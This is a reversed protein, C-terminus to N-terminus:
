ANRPNPDDLFYGPRWFYAPDPSRILLHVPEPWPLPRGSCLKSHSRTAHQTNRTAHQTNRTSHQTNRTAHQTNRVVKSDSVKSGAVRSGAVRSGAVRVGELWFYLSLMLLPPLLVPRFGARSNLLHWWSVALWGTAVLALWRRHAHSQSFPRLLSLAFRYIIPVTLLGALAGVWRVAFTTNGLLSTSFLLLYHWMPERGNNGVFFLPYHGTEAMWRADMANYAEDYWLGPPLEPLHWLRLWFAILILALLVARHRTM